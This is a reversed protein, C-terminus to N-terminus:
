QEGRGFYFRLSAYPLHAHYNQPRVNYGVQRFKSENYNYYQYGFNADVRRHVRLSLRAEPSQFSMPYSSIFLGGPMNSVRDGQGEDRNIRYSAFFTVRRFPQAVTDVHFFHNRMYYLAHGTYFGNAPASAPPVAFTYRVVADSNAWQYNYGGSFSLRPNATFDVSSSFVRSKVDVGFDELSVGEISSPNSNDRTILNLNLALKRSPTYRSRVRFNTYDYQGIRTLVHDAVGREVNMFLTWTKAPRARFGAIFAHTHNEELADEIPSVPAGNNGLNAGGHFEEIRTTGYRYGLHFSYRDNFQYDGEVLDSMKRFKTLAYSTGGPRLTVAGTGNTRTMSFVGAYYDSGNIRFSDFTFTNSLRFKSTVLYTAGFDGRAAPRNAGGDFNWQGLTLINPPNIAGPINTIRTNFNAGTVSESWDFETRSGSYVFRGTLDLKRALLTHGTFQTFHVNGKVPAVKDFTYLLANSATTPNAGLNLYNNDVSTDDRFRRYGQLLSFDVPGLKWDAGVRFEHSRSKAQSLLVFDDGGYHWSTFAPGHYRTPSYGVKFSLKENKPLLTLDFDGVEQRTDSSHWGTDQSSPLSPPAYYPNAFSNVNRYYKFRRYNGDLRYLSSKEVSFRMQGQPDGGWGTSTVLLTDFLQGRGERAQMLLSTDFLRPGTRYNLDSQYRNVDGGVRLGRYGLEISSTVTYDGAAPEERPTSSQTKAAADEQPSPSPQQATATLASLAMATMLGTLVRLVHTAKSNMEDMRESLM